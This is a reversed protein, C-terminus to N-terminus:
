FYATVQLSFRHATYSGFDASSSTVNSKTTRYSYDFEPVFYDSVRWQLSSNFEYDDDVRQYHNLDLPKQSKFDQHQYDLSGSAIIRGRRDFKYRAGVEALRANYSIDKVVPNLSDKGAARSQALGFGGYVSARRSLDYSLRASETVTSNDREDFPYKYNSSGLELNVRGDLKSTLATGLELGFSVRSFDAAAYRVGVPRDPMPRWYLNRLNFKPLWGFSIEGYSRGIIRRLEMGWQSYRRYSNLAFFTASGRLRIRWLGSRRRGYDYTMRAGVTTARDDLSSIAFRQNTPETEFLTRDADSYNIINNDFSETMYGYWHLRSNARRSMSRASILATDQLGTGEAIQVKEGAGAIGESHAPCGFAVILALLCGAIRIVDRVSSKTYVVMM